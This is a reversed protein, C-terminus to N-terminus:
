WLPDKYAKKKTGTHEWYRQGDDDYKTEWWGKKEKEKKETKKEETANVTVVFPVPSPPVVNGGWPAPSPPMVNGGWPAAPQFVATGPTPTYTAGGMPVTNVPVPSVFNGYGWRNEGTKTHQRYTELPSPRM